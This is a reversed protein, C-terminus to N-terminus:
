EPDVVLVQAARVVREGIMYGAKAVLKVSTEEVEPDTGMHSLAEHRNPDFVDGPEGFKKLGLNTVIKELQDSVAKFGGEVEGHERARDITDLVEVIPTLVKYTANQAVLERDRDVRRKYNVYEAQLRQLDTTLEAVRKDVDDTVPEESEEVIAAEDDAEAPEEDDLDEVAIDDADDAADGADDASGGVHVQTPEDDSGDESSESPEAEASEAETSEAETPEADTPEAEEAETEPLPAESATEEVAEEAGSPRRKTM